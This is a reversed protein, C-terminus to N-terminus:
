EINIEEIFISSTNIIVGPKHIHLISNEILPYEVKILLKYNNKELEINLNVDKGVNRPILFQYIAHNNINFDESLNESKKFILNSNIPYAEKPAILYISLYEILKASKLDLIFNFYNGGIKKYSLGYPKVINIKDTLIINKSNRLINYVNTINNFELTINGIISKSNLSLYNGNKNIDKVLKAEITKGGPFTATSIIFSSLILFILIVIVASFKIEKLFYFKFRNRIILMIRLFLLVFPFIFISFFMNLYFININKVVEIDKIRFLDFVLVILPIISILYCSFKLLINRKTYQSIFLIIIAWLYIYSYSIDFVSFIILNILFFVFSGFVYLYSHKPFPIKNILKYFILIVLFPIMLINFFYLMPFNLYAKSIGTFYAIPIFAVLPVFTLSSFIIFILIFFPLSKIFLQIHLKQFGPFFIRIIIIIIFVLFGITIQIMESILIDIGFLNIYQYHYDMDLPVKIKDLSVLWNYFYETIEHRYKENIYIESTEEIGKNSFSVCPMDNKLFISSYNLSPQFFFRAKYIESKLFGIKLDKNKIKLFNKLIEYPIPKRISSGSFYVRHQDNLINIVTVLSKNLNETKKLFFNIGDFNSSERENAGSFLFIINKNFVNSKCMKILELMIQISITNDYFTRNIISSNLPCAFVLQEENINTGKFHIEINYSNTIIEERDDIKKIIYNIKYYNCFDEIYRILKEEKISGEDRPFFKESLEHLDYLNFDDVSNINLAIFFLFLIVYIVPSRKM